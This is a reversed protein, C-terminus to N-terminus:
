GMLVFVIGTLYFGAPYFWRQPRDQLYEMLLSLIVGM